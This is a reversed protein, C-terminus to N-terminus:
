DLEKAVLWQLLQMNVMTVVAYKGNRIAEEGLSDFITRQEDSLKYKDLYSVPEIKNEKIEVEKKTNAYLEMLQEFDTKLIQDILHQKKDENIKELISIIHTQNYKKLIKIAEQEKNM